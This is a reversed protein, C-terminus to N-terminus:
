FNLSMICQNPDHSVFRVNLGDIENTKCEFCMRKQGPTKTYLMVEGGGGWVCVCLCMCVCVNIYDWQRLVDETWRLASQKSEM